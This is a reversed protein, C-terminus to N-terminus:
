IAANGHCEAGPCLKCNRQCEQNATGRRLHELHCLLVHGGVGQGRLVEEVHVRRRGSAMLPAVTGAKYAFFIRCLDDELVEAHGLGSQPRVLLLRNPVHLHANERPDVKVREQLLSGKAGALAINKQLFVLGLRMGLNQFNGNSLRDCLPHFDRFRRHIHSEQRIASGDVIQLNGTRDIDLAGVAVDWAVSLTRHGQESNAEHEMNNCAQCPDENECAVFRAQM